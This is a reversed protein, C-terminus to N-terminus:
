GDRQPRGAVGAAPEPEQLVGARGGRLQPRLDAARRVPLEPRAGDVRAGRHARPPRLSGARDRPSAAGRLALRPSLALHPAPPRIRPFHQAVVRELSHRRLLYRHFQRQARPHLLAVLVHQPFPSVHFSRGLPSPNM